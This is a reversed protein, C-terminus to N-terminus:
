EGGENFQRQSWCTICKKKLLFRYYVQYTEIEKKLDLKWIEDNTINNYGQSVICIQQQRKELPLSHLIYM